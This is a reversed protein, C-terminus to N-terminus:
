LVNPDQEDFATDQNSPVLPSVRPTMNAITPSPAIVDNPIVHFPNETNLQTAPEMIPSHNTGPERAFKSQLERPLEVPLERPIQTPPTTPNDDHSYGPFAWLTLVALLVTSLLCRKNM